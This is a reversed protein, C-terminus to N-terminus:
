CGRGGLGMIGKVASDFTSSEGVVPYFRGPAANMIEKM